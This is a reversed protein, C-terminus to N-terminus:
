EKRTKLVLMFRGYSIFSLIFGIAMTLSALESANDKLNITAIGAGAAILISFLGIAAIKKWFSVGSKITFVLIVIAFLVLIIGNIGHIAFAIKAFISEQSANPDDPPIGFLNIIMGLVFEISLSVLILRVNKQLMVLYKNNEGAM